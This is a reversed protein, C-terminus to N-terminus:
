NMSTNQTYLHVNHQSRKPIWSPFIFRNSVVRAGLPLEEQLKKELRGMIYPIGFVTVGTLHRCSYSWISAHVIIARNQLGNHRIRLRSIWVLFINKEVGIAHVGARALAIVVRGDGSGIDLITDSPKLELMQIMQAIARPDSPAFFAGRLGSSAFPIIVVLLLAILCLKMIIEIWIM